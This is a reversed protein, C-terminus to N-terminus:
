SRQNPRRRAGARAVGDTADATRAESARRDPFLTWSKTGLWYSLAAIGLILLAIALSAPRDILRARPADREDALWPLRDLGTIARSENM